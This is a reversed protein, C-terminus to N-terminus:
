SSPQLLLIVSNVSIIFTVHETAVHTLISLQYYSRIPASSPMSVFVTYFLKQNADM